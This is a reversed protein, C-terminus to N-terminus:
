GEKQHLSGAMVLQLRLLYTSQQEAGATDDDILVVHDTTLVTYTTTTVSTTSTALRGFQPAPCVSSLFQISATGNLGSGTTADNASSIAAIGM